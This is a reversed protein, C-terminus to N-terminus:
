TVVEREVCEEAVSALDTVTKFVGQSDSIVTRYICVM